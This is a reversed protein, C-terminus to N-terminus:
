GQASEQSSQCRICRAASPYASLRNVEIPEGCAVCWGYTGSAIRNLAARVEALEIHYHKGMARLLSSQSDAVSEEGRDHVEREAAKAEASESHQKELEASLAREQERLLGELRQITDPTLETM